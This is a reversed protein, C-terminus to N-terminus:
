PLAYILGTILAGELAAGNLSFSPYYWVYPAPSGPRYHGLTYNCVRAKESLLL